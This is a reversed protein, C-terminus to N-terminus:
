AGNAGRRSRHSVIDRHGRRYNEPTTGYWRSFARHFAAPEAFGVLYAVDATAISSERLYRGATEKRVADLLGDYSVGEAALRRQLTRSSMALARAVTPLHVERDALRAALLRQVDAALGSCRSTRAILEDAHDELLRRLVPDRRRLALGRAEPAVSFGSWGATSRVRAGLAQGFADADDPKHAFCVLAPKFLGDTSDRLRLVTLAVLFEAGLPPAATRVRLTRADGELTLATPDLVLRLYREMRSLGHEVTDSTAVIYDLLPYSGLPTLEAVRLMLNPTRRIRQASAVIQGYTDCPLWADPDELEARRLGVSALLADACYGLRDLGNALVLLDRATSWTSGARHLTASARAPSPTARLALPNARATM